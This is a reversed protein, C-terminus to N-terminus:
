SALSDVFRWCSYGESARSSQIGQERTWLECRGSSTHYEVGKCNSTTQCLEQCSLLSAANSVTFYSSLNDSPGAGRCVRGTGSDVPEFRGPRLTPPAVGEELFRWCSYGPKAASAQIGGARTWLECRGGEHHEVGVCEAESQCMRQCGELSLGSVVHFYDQSNDNAHRGRCARGTAGDVPEFSGHRLSEPDVYRLCTYGSLRKSARIPRTWIECRVGKFELGECGSTAKCQAQCDALTSREVVQYYEASNDTASDGRCARDDGGDVPEFVRQLTM